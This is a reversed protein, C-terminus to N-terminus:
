FLRSVGSPPAYGNIAAGFPSPSTPARRTGRQLGSGENSDPTAPKGQFLPSSTPIHPPSGFVKRPSFIRFNPMLSHSEEGDVSLFSDEGAPQGGHPGANYFPSHRSRSRVSVGYALQAQITAWSDDNDPANTYPPHLDGRDLSSQPSKQPSGDALEQAYHLWTAKKGESITDRGAFAKKPTPSNPLPVWPPAIYFQPIPNASPRRAQPSALGPLASLAVAVQSAPSRSTHKLPSRDRRELRSKKRLQLLADTFLQTAEDSLPGQHVSESVSATPSKSLRTSLHFRHGPHYANSRRLSKEFILYLWASRIFLLRVQNPSRDSVGFSIGFRSLPSCQGGHAQRPSLNTVSSDDVPATPASANASANVPITPPPASFPNDPPNTPLASTTPNLVSTPMFTDNLPAAHPSM